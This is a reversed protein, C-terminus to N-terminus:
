PLYFLEELQDSVPSNDPNVEMIDAMYDWWKQMIAYNGLSQSGEENSTNQIAFLLHTEEDFYISYDSIGAQQLLEEIEPWINSHRKRYEEKQGQKLRMKFAVRGMISVKRWM